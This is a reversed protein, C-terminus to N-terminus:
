EPLITLMSTEIPFMVLDGTRGDAAVAEVTYNLVGSPYDAPIVWDVTWYADVPEDRPHPGYEMTFRQGDPLVVEVSELADDAMREGTEPDIVKTRWVIQQEHQFRSTAVCTLEQTNNEHGAVIDTVIILNAGDQAWATGAVLLALAASVALTRLRMHLREM